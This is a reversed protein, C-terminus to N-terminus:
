DRQSHNGKHANTWANGRHTHLQGSGLSKAPMKGAM